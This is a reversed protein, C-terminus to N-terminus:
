PHHRHQFRAPHRMLKIGASREQISEAEEHTYLHSQTLDEVPHHRESSSASSVEDDAGEPRLPTIISPHFDSDEGTTSINLGDLMLSARPTPPSEDELDYPIELAEESDQLRHEISDPSADRDALRERFSEQLSAMPQQRFSGRSLLSASQQSPASRTLHPSSSAASHSTTSLSRSLSTFVNAESILYARVNILSIHRKGQKPVITPQPTTETEPDPTPTKEDSATSVTAASTVGEVEISGLAIQFSIPETASSSSPTTDVASLEMDLQFTVCKIRIQTRDVVGQLFDALFNPLSLAQGTGFAQPEEEAGDDSVAVSAGLDQTEAVLADQLRKRESTPQTDLFSQALDVTNPVVNAATPSAPADATTETHEAADVRIKVQVGDVEVTIPSTYFDMPVTVRLLLVKARSLKLAAPLQLLEDLKKLQIGVDRFEFVTNRGLAFDLNDIDLADADLLDLRSLAYRLLRKPMSSSRFSPFFAAM